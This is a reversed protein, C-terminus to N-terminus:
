RRLGQLGEQAQAVAQVERLAQHAQDGEAQTRDHPVQARISEEQPVPLHPPRRPDQGDQPPQVQHQLEAQPPLHHAPGDQLGPVRAPVHM